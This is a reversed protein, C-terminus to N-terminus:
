ACRGKGFRMGGSVAYLNFPPFRFQFLQYKSYVGRQLGEPLSRLQSRIQNKHMVADEPPPLRDEGPGVVPTDAKQHLMVDGKVGSVKGKISM